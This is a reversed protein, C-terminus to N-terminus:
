EFIEKLTEKKETNEQKNLSSPDIGLIQSIGELKGRIEDQTDTPKPLLTETIYKFRTNSLTGKNVMTVLESELAGTLSLFKGKAHAKDGGFYSLVDTGRGVKSVLNTLENFAGQTIKKHESKEKENGALKNGM